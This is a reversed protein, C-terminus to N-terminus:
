IGAYCHAATMVHYPSLITGGCGGATWFGDKESGLPRLMVQWPISNKEAESGGTIRIRVTGLKRGCSFNQLQKGLLIHHPYENLM